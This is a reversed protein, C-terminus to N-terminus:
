NKNNAKVYNIERRKNIGNTHCVRKKFNPKAWSIVFFLSLVCSNDIAVRFRNSRM